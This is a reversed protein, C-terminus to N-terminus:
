SKKRKRSRSSTRPKHAKIMEEWSDYVPADMNLEGPDYMGIRECIRMMQSPREEKELLILAGACHKTHPGEVRQGDEDDDDSVTTKHCPFEARELSRRIEKVRERTIFPQIDTRFPCQPCPSKLDYPHHSPM